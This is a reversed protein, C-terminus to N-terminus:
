TCIVVTTKSGYRPIRNNHEFDKMDTFIYLSIHLAITSFECVLLRKKM